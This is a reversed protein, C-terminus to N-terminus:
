KEAAAVFTAFEVLPPDLIKELPLPPRIKLNSTEFIVVPTYLLKSLCSIMMAYFPVM